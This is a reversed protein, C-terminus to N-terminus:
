FVVFKQSSMSRPCKRGIVSIQWTAFPRNVVIFLGLWSDNKKIFFSQQIAPNKRKKRINIVCLAIGVRYCSRVFRSSIIPSVVAIHIGTM